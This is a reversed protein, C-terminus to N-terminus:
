LMGKYTSRSVELDDLKKQFGINSIAIEGNENTEFKTKSTFQIQCNNREFTLPSQFLVLYHNLAQAQKNQTDIQIALEPKLKNFGALTLIKYQSFKITNLQKFVSNLPTGSTFNGCLFYIEKRAENVFFGGFGFVFVVILISLFKIM